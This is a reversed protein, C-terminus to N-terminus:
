SRVEGDETLRANGCRCEVCGGSEPGHHPWSHGCSCAVPELHVPRHNGGGTLSQCVESVRRAAEAQDAHQRRIDRVIPLARSTIGLKREIRREVEDLVATVQEAVTRELYTDLETVAALRPGSQYRPFHRDILGGLTEFRDSMAAVPRVSPALMASPPAPM